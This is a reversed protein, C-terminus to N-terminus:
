LDIDQGGQTDQAQVPSVELNTSSPIGKPHDSKKGSGDKSQVKGLTRVINGTVM